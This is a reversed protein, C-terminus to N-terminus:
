SQQTAISKASVGVTCPSGRTIRQRTLKQEQEGTASVRSFMTQVRLSKLRLYSLVKEVPRRMTPSEMLHVLVSRVVHLFSSGLESFGGLGAKGM